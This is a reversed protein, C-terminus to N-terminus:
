KAEKEKTNENEEAELVESLSRKKLMFLTTGFNGFSIGIKILLPIIFINTILSLFTAVAFIIGVSSLEGFSLLIFVLSSFFMASHSLIVKVLKSKYATELAASLSKGGNYEKKVSLAFDFAFVYMMAFSIIMALMASFGIEVSPILCLLIVFLSANLLMTLFALVAFVGFKTAFAILILAAVFAITSLLIVYTSSSFFEAQNPSSSGEGATLSASMTNISVTNANFEIPICGVKVRLKLDNLAEYSETYGRLVLKSFGDQSVANASLSFEEASSDGFKLYIKESSSVKNWLTEYQKAGEDNFNIIISMINQETTYSVSEVAEPANVVVSTDTQSSTDLLVLKGSTIRQLDTIVDSYSSAGKPYSLEARFKEGTSSKITKVSANKYGCDGLVESIISQTKLIDAETYEESKVEFEGYIGGVIDSSTNISNSFGVWTKNGFNMPVFSFVLGVILVFGLIISLIIATQKSFKKM